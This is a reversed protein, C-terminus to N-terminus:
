RASCSACGIPARAGARRGSLLRDFWRANEVEADARRMPPPSASGKTASRKADAAGAPQRCEELLTTWSWRFLDPDPFYRYDHADEKYRLSRNGAKDPGYLRTEQRDHRGGGPDRDPPREKV